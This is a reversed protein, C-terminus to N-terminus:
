AARRDLHGRVSAHTAGIVRAIAKTPLGVAALKHVLYSQSPTWPRHPRHPEVALERGCIPCDIVRQVTM